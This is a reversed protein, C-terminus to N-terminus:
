ARRGKKTWLQHKYANFQSNIFNSQRQENVWGVTFQIPIWRLLLGDISSYVIEAIWMNYDDHNRKNLCM